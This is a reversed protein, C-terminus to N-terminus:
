RGADVEPDREVHQARLRAPVVAGELDGGPEGLRDAQRDVGPRERPHEDIEVAGGIVGVDHREGAVARAHRAVGPEGGPIAGRAKRRKV